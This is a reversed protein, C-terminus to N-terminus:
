FVYSSNNIPRKGSEILKQLEEIFKRCYVEDKTGEMKM